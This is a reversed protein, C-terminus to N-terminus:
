PGTVGGECPAICDRFSACAHSSSAKPGATGSHGHPNSGEIKPNLTSRFPEASNPPRAQSWPTRSLQEGRVHKEAAVRPGFGFCSVARAFWRIDGHLKAAHEEPAKGHMDCYRFHSDQGRLSNQGECRISGVSRSSPRRIDEDANSLLPGNGERLDGAQGAAFNGFGLVPACRSNGSPLTRGSIGRSCRRGPHKRWVTVVLM